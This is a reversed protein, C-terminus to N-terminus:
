SAAGDRAIRLQQYRSWATHEDENDPGGGGTACAMRHALSQARLFLAINEATTRARAERIAVAEAHEFGAIRRLWETRRQETEDVPGRAPGGDSPGDYPHSNDDDESM